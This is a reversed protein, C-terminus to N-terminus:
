YIRGMLYSPWAQASSHLLKSNNVGNKKKIEIKIKIQSIFL